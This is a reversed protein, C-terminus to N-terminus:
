KTQRAPYQYEKIIYKQGSNIQSITGRNLHFAEGIETMSKSTTRLDNLISLVDEYTLNLTSKTTRIPYTYDGIDKFIEGKNIAYLLKRTIGYKKYLDGNDMKLWWSYKLDEKLSILEVENQFYDTVLTKKQSSHNNKRLPYVLNNQRYSRGSSIRYILDNYVQYKKAIDLYSYEPHYILLDIVEEVEEQTLSANPHTSGRKFSVDGGSTLNYGKDRNMSQYIQIWYAEREDLKSLDDVEELIDVELLTGYKQIAQECLQINKDGHIGKRARQNHEMVRKYINQSQGIYVKGNPYELKYIGMIVSNALDKIQYKM